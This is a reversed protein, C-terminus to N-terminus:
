IAVTGKCGKPMKTLYAFGGIYWVDFDANYLWVVAVGYKPSQVTTICKLNILPSSWVPTTDAFYVIELRYYETKDFYVQYGDVIIIYEGPGAALMAVEPSAGTAGDVNLSGDPNIIILDLDSTAWKTWDRYWYLFVFAFGNADVIKFTYTDTEGNKVTGYYTEIRGPYVEV